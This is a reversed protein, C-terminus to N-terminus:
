RSAGRGRGRGQGQGQGQGAIPACPAVPQDITPDSAQAPGAGDCHRIAATEDLFFARTGTVGIVQPNVTLAFSGAPAAAGSYTYVYGSVVDNPDNGVLRRCFPAPGFDPDPATGANCDVGYMSSLWSSTPPYVNNAVYYMTLAVALQRLNAVAVTENGTARMRLINIASIASLLGIITVVVLIEILTFGSRKAM